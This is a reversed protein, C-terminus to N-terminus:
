PFHVVSWIDIIQVGVETSFMCSGIAKSVSLGVSAAESGMLGPVALLTAYAELRYGAGFSRHTQAVGMEDSIECPRGCHGRPVLQFGISSQEGDSVSGTQIRLM